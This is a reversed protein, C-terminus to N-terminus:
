SNNPYQTTIIRYIDECFERIGDEFVQPAKRRNFTTRESNVENDLSLWKEGDRYVIGDYRILSAVETQTTSGGYGEIVVMSSYRDKVVWDPRIRLLHLTIGEKAISDSFEISSVSAEFTYYMSLRLSHRFNSVDMRGVSFENEISNDLIITLPEDLQEFHPKVYSDATFFGAKPKTCSSFLTFLLVFSFLVSFAKM